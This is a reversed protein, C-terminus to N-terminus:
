PAVGRTRSVATQWGAYRRNREDEPMAPDFSADARWDARGEGPLPILGAQMGAVAPSLMAAPATVAFHGSYPKVM